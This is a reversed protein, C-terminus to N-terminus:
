PRTVTVQVGDQGPGTTLELTRAGPASVIAAGQVEVQYGGPYTSPPLFIETRAGPPFPHGSDARQTSYRLTFIASASDYNWQQPTGAVAQPYPRVLAPDMLNPGTPPEQPHEPTQNQSQSWFLWSAMHDDFRDALRTLRAAERTAGFETVLGVVGELGARNLGNTICTDVEGVCYDHFSMGANPDGTPNPMWNPIGFDNVMPPEYFLLHEPDVRRIANMVKGQFPALVDKEFHPCGQPICTPYEWGPWPENILDYGLVYPEGAFHRAVHAWMAAYHDQLGVGDPAARNRWFNAWAQNQAPSTVYVFPFGPAPQLPFGDTIAAWAPFGSWSAGVSENFADQHSDVLSYIGYRALLQQTQELQEIYNDDYVGPQPEVANWAFGLRVANFGNDALFQADRDGFGGAAPFYPPYKYVMNVGHLTVVRGHEDTLWRGAHGLEAAAPTAVAPATTLGLLLVVLGLCRVASFMITM